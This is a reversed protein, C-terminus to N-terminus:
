RQELLGSSRLVFVFRVVVYLLWGAPGFLFTLALCPVVALHPIGRRRADRVEWSGVFLDFALYHIWGALLLWPNTFLAAVAPLSSFGGSSRGFQTVVIAIYAVALFAPVVLGTAVGAVWRKRPLAVLLIWAVLAMANVISFIQNPTM